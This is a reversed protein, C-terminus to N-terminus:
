SRTEALIKLGHAFKQFSPTLDPISKAIIPAMPGSFDERMHFHTGRATPSLTFSRVGKFLGLPMGGEWTMRLPPEFASVKLAFARGPSAQSWLKLREGPRIAGEIRTVGLDGGALRQADTLIAWVRAPEAAIDQRVEFSTM